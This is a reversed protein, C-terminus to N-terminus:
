GESAGNIANLGRSKFIMVAKEVDGLTTETDPLTNKMGLAEYRSGSFSHYKLVKVGTIGRLGCLFDAIKECECDNIGKVLPYRIEIDCGKESLFLLNDLIIGNEKGTCRKHIERDVAKVDYLFKDTYPIIKELM